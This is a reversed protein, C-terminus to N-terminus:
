AAEPAEKGWAEWGSVRERAFLEIKRQTPFMRTIRRRVEDPKASHKGRLQSVFQRENRSGRPRPISGRKGVCCIELQSLTYYGPNTRQKDWGFAITGWSFGWAEMVRLGDPFLPSPVWLFLLSNRAAISQVPLACIEDVRMTEYHMVAGGSDIGVDGAFGFQKRGRYNWAPDAYVIDFPGPPLALM